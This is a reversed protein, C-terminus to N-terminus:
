DQRQSVRDVNRQNSAQRSQDPRKGERNPGASPNRRNKRKDFLDNHDRRGTKKDASKFRNANRRGKRKQLMLYPPKHKKRKLHALSEDSEILAELWKPIRDFYTKCQESKEREWSM